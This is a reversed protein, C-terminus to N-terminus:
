NLTSASAPAGQPDVRDAWEAFTAAVLAGAPEAPNIRSIARELLARAEFPTAPHVQEGGLYRAIYQKQVATFIAQTM